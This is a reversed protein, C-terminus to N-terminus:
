IYILQVGVQFIHHFLTGAAARCFVFSFHYQYYRYTFVVNFMGGICQM